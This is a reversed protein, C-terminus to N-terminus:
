LATRPLRLVRLRARAARELPPAAPHLALATGRLALWQAMSPYREEDLLAPSGAGAGAGRLARRAEAELEAILADAILQEHVGLAERDAITVM